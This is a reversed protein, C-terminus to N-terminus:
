LSAVDMLRDVRLILIFSGLLVPLSIHLYNDSDDLRM